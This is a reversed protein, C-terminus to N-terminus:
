LNVTKLAPWLFAFGSPWRALSKKFNSTRWFIWKGKLFFATKNLFFLSANFLSTNICCLTKINKILKLELVFHLPVVVFWEFVSDGNRTWCKPILSGAHSECEWDRTKRTIADYKKNVERKEAANKVKSKPPQVEPSFRWTTYTKCVRCLYSCTHLVSRILYLFLVEPRAKGLSPFNRVPVTNLM